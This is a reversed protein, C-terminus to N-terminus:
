VHYIDVVQRIYDNKLVITKRAIRLADGEQRLTLSTTGFFQDTVKYRHSLTHFNHRVEIERRRAALVEVNSVQHATRPEPTSAGSRETKIRFVRDELGSRDAYYILSIQSQPDDTLRDDDDWAPMWYTADEAYLTLWEDWQRDDLLRAERYLFACIAQYDVSM